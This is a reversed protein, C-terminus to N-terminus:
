SPYNTDGAGAKEGRESLGGSNRTKDPDAQRRLTIGSM